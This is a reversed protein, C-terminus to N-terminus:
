LSSLYKSLNSLELSILTDKPREFDLIFSFEESLKVDGAFAAICAYYHVCRRLSDGKAGDDTKSNNKM